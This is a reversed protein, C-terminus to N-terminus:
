EFTIKKFMDPYKTLLHSAEAEMARIAALGTLGAHETKEDLNLLHGRKTLYTKCKLLCFDKRKTILFGNDYLVMPSKTLKKRQSPRISKEM